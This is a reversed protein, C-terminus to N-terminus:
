SKSNLSDLFSIENFISLSNLPLTNDKYKSKLPKFKMYFFILYPMQLFRTCLTHELRNLAIIVSVLQYSLRQIKPTTLLM